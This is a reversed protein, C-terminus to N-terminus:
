RMTSQPLRRRSRWREVTSSKKTTALTIATATNTPRTEAETVPM